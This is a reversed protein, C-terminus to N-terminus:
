SRSRRSLVLMVSALFLGLLAPSSVTSIQGRIEGSGYDLTHLNFYLNGSLLEDILASDFGIGNAIISLGTATETFFDSMNFPVVVPGNQGTPANHIHFPGAESFSLLGSPFIIDSLFIGEITAVLDLTLTDLNFLLSASGTSASPSPNSPMVEQDYDLEATATIFNAHATGSLTLVLFLASVYIIRKM